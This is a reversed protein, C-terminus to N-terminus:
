NWSPAVWTWGVTDAEESDRATDGTMEESWWCCWGWWQVETHLQCGREEM